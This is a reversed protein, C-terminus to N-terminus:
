GADSTGTICLNGKLLEPIQNSMASEKTGALLFWMIKVILVAIARNLTKMKGESIECALSGNEASNEVNNELSRCCM